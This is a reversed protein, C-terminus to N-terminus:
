HVFSAQVKHGLLWTGKLSTERMKERKKTYLGEFHWLVASNFQETDIIKVISPLVQEGKGKKEKRERPKM